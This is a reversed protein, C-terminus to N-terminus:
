LLVALRESQRLLDGHRSRSAVMLSYASLPENRLQRMSFIIVDGADSGAGCGALDGCGGGHQASKDRSPRRDVKPGEIQPRSIPLNM